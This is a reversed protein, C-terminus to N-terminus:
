GFVVASRGSISRTSAPEIVEAAVATWPHHNLRDALLGTGGTAWRNLRVKMFGTDQRWRARSEFEGARKRDFRDALVAGIEFAGDQRDNLPM